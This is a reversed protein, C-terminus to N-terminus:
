AAYFLVAFFHCVTGALVFLHWVFHTYPVREDVVFFAIGATYSLGGAVLWFIGWGPLALWLPQIAIVALWGMALYLATSFFGYRAGGIAKSVIGLLALGWILGFLTWGWPGRLAGLTFPTYTGAILLFIASHDLVQLREKTRGEPLAHYLTSTLYLLVMSAGFISAGVVGAASGDRAAAVVLVPLAAIALVLGLGHSIANAVEEGPSQLATKEETM